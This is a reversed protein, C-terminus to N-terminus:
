ACPVLWLSAYWDAWGFFKDALRGESCANFEASENEWCHLNYPWGDFVEDAACCWHSPPSPMDTEDFPDLRRIDSLFFKELFNLRKVSRGDAMQWRCDAIQVGLNTDKWMSVIGCGRRLRDLTADRRAARLPPISPVYVPGGEGDFCLSRTGM